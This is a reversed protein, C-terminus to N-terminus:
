ARSARLTFLTIEPPCNFRARVLGVGLGRNTYVYMDGAKDLGAPYRQGLRPRVLPGIMPPSIQGGHTHGSLQLDFRGTAASVYAFDPEHSLLIAAGAAPIQPLVLDLRAQRQDVDDVGVLHLAAAGRWITHMQNPLEKIGAQTLTMRVNALDHKHDHNGLVAVTMLTPQLASLTRQLDALNYSRGDQIFDGTIAIIDPQQANVLAVIPAFRDANMWHNFHIDSIQALRLGDFAPDLRPLTLSVPRVQVAAPEIERAYYATAVAGLGAMVTFIQKLKM